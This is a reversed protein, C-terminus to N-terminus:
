ARSTADEPAKEKPKCFVGELINEVIGLSHLYRATTNASKHRLIAQITPIPVGARALISASLHRIAHFGFTPVGARRCLREMYHQRNTYPTGDPQSFVYLSRMTKKHAALTATLQSTMPISAYEMGGDATKKTGLRITGSDLDVDSWMMRFLEGRRAATHLATLLFAQDEKQAAGHASWFEAETPIHRPKRDERWRPQDFARVQEIQYVRCTWAHWAKLNKRDKNAANGSAKARLALADHVAKAPIAEFPMHPDIHQFLNRIALRKEMYTERSMESKCHELYENALSYATLIQTPKPEVRVKAEWQRAASKTQFCKTKRMGDIMKHARWTGNKMKYPM